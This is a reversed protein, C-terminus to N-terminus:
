CSEKQDGEREEHIDEDRYNRGILAMWGERDHGPLDEWVEQAKAQLQRSIAHNLHVAERGTRHHRECLYVKLGEAESKERRASGYFIHHEELHYQVRSDNHLMRCLYCTGDNKQLISDKHKKRRKKPAKKPWGIM